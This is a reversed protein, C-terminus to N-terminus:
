NKTKQRAEALFENFTTGFGEALKHAIDDYHGPKRDAAVTWTLHGNYSIIGLAIVGKGAQPPSATWRGVEHGEISIPMAPGPVNTLVAHYSTFARDILWSDKSPLLAPVRLAFNLVQFGVKSWFSRKISQMEDHAADILAQASQDTSTRFYATMGTSQNEMRQNSATRVSIPIFLAVRSDPTRGSNKVQAHITKAAVACMVDNLTIHQGPRSFAHQVLKIDAMSIAESFAFEKEAPRPGEYSFMRPNFTVGMWISRAATYTDFVFNFLLYATWLCYFLFTVAVSPVYPDYARLKAGVVPLDSLKARGKELKDEKTSAQAMKKEMMVRASTTTLQSVVLGQGDSLTHHVRSLVASKGGAGDDLNHLVKAEWLPRSLDWTKAIFTAMEEELERKGNKGDPLRDVFIHNKIDFNEDDVLQAPHWTLGTDVLKQRYRPFRTIMESWSRVLADDAIEDKFIFIGSCVPNFDNHGGTLPPWMNDIGSLSHHFRDVEDRVWNLLGAQKPKSATAATAAALANAKKIKLIEDDSSDGSNRRKVNGM